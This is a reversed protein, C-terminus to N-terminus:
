FTTFLCCNSLMVVKLVSFCAEFSIYKRMIEISHKNRGFALKAMLDLQDLFFYYSNYEPNHEHEVNDHDELKMGIASFRHQLNFKVLHYEIVWKSQLRKRPQKLPM